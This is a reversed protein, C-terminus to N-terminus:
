GIETVTNIVAWQKDRDQALDIWAIGEWRISRLNMKINVEM